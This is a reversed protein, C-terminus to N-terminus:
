PLLAKVTEIIGKVCWYFLISEIIGIISVIHYVFICACIFLPIIFMAVLIISSTSVNDNDKSVFENIRIKTADGIEITNGDVKIENKKKM